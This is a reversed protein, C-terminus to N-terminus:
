LIKTYECRYACGMVSWYARGFAGLHGRPSATHMPARPSGMIVASFQECKPSNDDHTWASMGELIMNPKSPTKATVTLGTAPTRLWSRLGKCGESGRSRSEITSAARWAARSERMLGASCFVIGSGIVSLSAPPEPLLEIHMMGLGNPPQM